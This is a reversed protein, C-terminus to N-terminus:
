AFAAAFERVRTAVEREGLALHELVTYRDPRTAPAHLVAAAFQAEGLGLDAPTRLTESGAHDGAWRERLTNVFDLSPRGGLWHWPMVGHYRSM